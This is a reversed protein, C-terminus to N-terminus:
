HPKEASTGTTTLSIWEGGGNPVADAALTLRTSAATTLERRSRVRYIVKKIKNIPLIHMNSCASFVWVHMCVGVANVRNCTARRVCLKM